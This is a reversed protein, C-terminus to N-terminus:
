IANGTLSRAATRVFKVALYKTTGFTTAAILPDIEVQETVLDYRMVFWLGCGVPYLGIRDISM